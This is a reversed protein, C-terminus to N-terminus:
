DITIEGNRLKKLFALAQSESIDMLRDASYYDLLAILADSRKKDRSFKKIAETTEYTIMHIM